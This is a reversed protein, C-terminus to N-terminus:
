EIPKSSAPDAVSEPTVAAGPTSVSAGALEMSGGGALAAVFQGNQRIYSV